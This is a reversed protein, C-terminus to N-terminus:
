VLRGVRLGAQPLCPRPGPLSSRGGGGGRWVPGSAASWATGPAWPRGAVGVAHTYGLPTAGSVYPSLSPPWPGGLLVSPHPAAARGGRGGREGGSGGRGALRPSAPGGGERPRSATGGGGSPIAVGPPPSAAPGVRRAGSRGGGGEAAPTAVPPRARVLAGSRRVSVAWPCCAVVFRFLIPATGGMALADGILGATNGEWPPCLSPNPRDSGAPPCNAPGKEAGGRWAPRVPSGRSGSRFRLGSPFVGVVFDLSPLCGCAAGWLSLLPAMARGGGRDDWGGWRGALRPPALGWGESASPIIREGGPLVAAGSISAPALGAGLGWCGAGVPVVFFLRVRAVRVAGQSPLRARVLATHPGPGGHGSRRWPCGSQQRGLSPLPVSCPLAVGRGMPGGLRVTLPCPACTPGGGRGVGRRLFAGPACVWVASLACGWALYPSLPVPGGGRSARWVSCPVPGPCASPCPSRPVARGAGLVSVARPARAVGVLPPPSPFASAVPARACVCVFSVRPIGSPCGSRGRPVCLGCPIAYSRALTLSMWVPRGAVCLAPCAPGSPPVPSFVVGPVPGLGGFWGRDGRVCSWPVAGALATTACQAVGWGWPLAAEAGACPPGVPLLSTARARCRQCGLRGRMLPAVCHTLARLWSQSNICQGSIPPIPLGPLSPAGLGTFGPSEAVRCSTRRPRGGM